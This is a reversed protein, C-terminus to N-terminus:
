LEEVMGKVQELYDEYIALDADLLNDGIYDMAKENIGDALVELMINNQDAFKKIGDGRLIIALAQLEIENLAERLLEWGDLGQEPEKESPDSFINQDPVTITMPVPSSAIPEEKEEVLLSAQTAMAEQRIRSLSNFDVAVVTRTTEKYFEIVAKPVINEMFLSLKKLKSLTEPNIM